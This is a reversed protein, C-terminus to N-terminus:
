KAENKTSRDKKSGQNLKNLSETDMFSETESDARKIQNSLHQLADEIKKLEELAEKFLGKDVMSQMKKLSKSLKDTRLQKLSNPNLFEESISKTQNALQSMIKQMTQQIKNIKNKLEDSTKSSKSNKINEFDDRLTQTLDNLEQELKAIRKLKQKNSIKVM